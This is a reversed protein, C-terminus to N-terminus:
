GDFPEFFEADFDLGDFDVDDFALALEAPKAFIPLLMTAPIVDTAALGSKRHGDLSRCDCLWSLPSCEEHAGEHGCKSRHSRSLFGCISDSSNASRGNVPGM